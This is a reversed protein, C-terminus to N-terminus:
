ARAAHRPGPGPPGVPWHRRRGARCPGAAGASQWPSSAARGPAATGAPADSAFDVAQEAAWLLQAADELTATRALVIADEGRYHPRERFFASLATPISPESGFLTNTALTERKSGAKKRRALGSLDEARYLSKRTDAPDPMVELKGRSVYAYITQPQVGLLQCAETM